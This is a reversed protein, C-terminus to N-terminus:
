TIHFKFHIKDHKPTRQYLSLKLKTKNLMYEYKIDKFRQFYVLNIQTNENIRSHM